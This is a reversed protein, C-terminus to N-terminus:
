FLMTSISASIPPSLPLHSTISSRPSSLRSSLSLSSSSSSVSSTSCTRERIDGGSTSETSSEYGSERRLILSACSCNNCSHSRRTSDNGRCSCPDERNEPSERGETFERSNQYDISTYTSTNFHRRSNYKQTEDGMPDKNTALSSYTIDTINHKRPTEKLGLLENSDEVKGTQEINGSDLTEKTKSASEGEKAPLIQIPAETTQVSTLRGPAHLDTSPRRYHADQKLLTSRQTDRKIELLTRNVALFKVLLAAEQRKVARMQTFLERLSNDAKSTTEKYERCMAKIQDIKMMTSLQKSQGERDPVLLNRM